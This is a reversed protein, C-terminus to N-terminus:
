CTSSCAVGAALCFRVVFRKTGVEQPSVGDGIETNKYITKFVAPHLCSEIIMKLCILNLGKKSCAM